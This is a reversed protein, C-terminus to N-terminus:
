RHLRLNLLSFRLRVSNMQVIRFILRCTGLFFLVFFWWWIVLFVKDNIINLNLICIANVNEQKGGSGYRFHGFRDIRSFSM